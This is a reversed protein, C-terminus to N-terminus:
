FMISSSLPMSRMHIHSHDSVFHFSLLSPYLPSGSCIARGQNGAPELHSLMRPEARHQGLALVLADRQFLSWLTFAILPSGSFDM